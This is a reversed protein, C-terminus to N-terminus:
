LCVHATFLVITQTLHGYLSVQESSSIRKTSATLSSRRPQPSSFKRNAVPAREAGEAPPSVLIAPVSKRDTRARVVPSTQTAAGSDSKMTELAPQPSKGRHFKM